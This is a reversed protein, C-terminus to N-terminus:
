RILGHKQTCRIDTPPSPISAHRGGVRSGGLGRQAGVEVPDGCQLALDTRRLGLLQVEDIARM